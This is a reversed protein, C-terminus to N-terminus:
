RLCCIYMGQSWWASHQLRCCGEHRKREGVKQLMYVRALLYGTSNLPGLELGHAAAEADLKSNKYSRCSSLLAGWAKEDAKFGEPMKKIFDRAANLKGARGFMYVICSYHELKAKIDYDQVMSKFFSLGEEVLGGHSCASLM